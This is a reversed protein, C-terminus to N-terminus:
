EAPPQRSAMEVMIAQLTNGVAHSNAKQIFNQRYDPPFKRDTMKQNLEELEFACQKMAADVVHRPDNYNNIGAFSKDNLCGDYRSAYDMMMNYDDETIENPDLYEQLQGPAADGANDTNAFCLLSMNLNLLVAFLIRNVISPTYKM